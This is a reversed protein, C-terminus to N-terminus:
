LLYSVAMICVTVDHEVIQAHWSAKKNSLIWLTNLWIVVLKSFDAIEKITLSPPELSQLSIIEGNNEPLSIKYSFIYRIIISINM